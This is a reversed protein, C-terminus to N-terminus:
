FPGSVKVGPGALVGPIRTAHDYMLFKNSPIRHHGLNYGHDPRGM